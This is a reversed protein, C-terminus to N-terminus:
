GIVGDVRSNRFSFIEFSIEHAQQCAFLALKLHIRSEELAKPPSCDSLTEDILERISIKIGKVPSM